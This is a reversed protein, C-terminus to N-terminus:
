KFNSLPRGSGGPQGPTKGLYNVQVPENLYFNGFHTRGGLTSSIVQAIRRNGSINSYTSNSNFSTNTYNEIGCTFKPCTQFNEPNRYLFLKSSNSKKGPTFQQYSRM